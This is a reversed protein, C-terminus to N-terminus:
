PLLDIRRSIERRSASGNPLLDRVRRLMAAMITPDLGSAQLVEVGRADAREEEDPSQCYGRLSAVGQIHGGNLLHGLEHALVAALEEDNLVEVLRHQVFITGDPWSFAGIDPSGLVYVRM